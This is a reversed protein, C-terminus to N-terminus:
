RRRMSAMSRCPAASLLTMSSFGSASSMASRSSMSRLAPRTRPGSCPMGTSILSLMSVASRMFVVAPDSASTSACGSSSAPITVRSRSAPATRSPLVFRLSHALKRESCEVLPQLPRPPSVILGYASSRLPQPDLVPDPAAAAALRHATATPVSVSPDIMQGEDRLPSTPMLGVTPSTLRLPMM